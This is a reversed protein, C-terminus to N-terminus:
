IQHKDCLCRLWCGAAIKGPNGCEECTRASMAEAMAAVGDTFTDGGHHYFRLTGFKEKVQLAVIQKCVPPVIRYEVTKHTEYQDIIKQKAAIRFPDTPLFSKYKKNFRRWKGKSADDLMLNHENVENNSKISADIHGQMLSCMGDIINYWGDGHEFGWGMLTSTPDGDRQEFIKPYKKCLAADLKKDM